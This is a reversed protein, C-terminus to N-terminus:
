KTSVMRMNNDAMGVRDLANLAFDEVNALMSSLRDVGSLGM